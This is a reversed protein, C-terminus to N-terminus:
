FIDKLSKVVKVVIVNKSSLVNKQNSYLYNRAGEVVSMALKNM